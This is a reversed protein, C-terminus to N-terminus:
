RSSEPSVSPRRIGYIQEIWNQGQSDKRRLLSGVLYTIAVASTIAIAGLGVRRDLAGSQELASIEKWYMMLVPGCLIFLSGCAAAVLVVALLPLTMLLVAANQLKIGAGDLGAIADHILSSQIAAFLSREPKYASLQKQKLLIDDSFIKAARRLELLNAEALEQKPDIVMKRASLTKKFDSDSVSIKFSLRDMGFSDLTVQIGIRKGIESIVPSIVLFRSSETLISALDRVKIPRKELDLFSWGELEARELEGLVEEYLRISLNQSGGPGSPSSNAQAIPVMMLQMSLLLVGFVRTLRFSTKMDEGMM